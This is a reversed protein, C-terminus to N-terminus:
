DLYAFSRLQFALKGGAIEAVKIPTGSHKIREGLGSEAYTRAPVIMTLDCIENLGLVFRIDTFGEVFFLVRRKHATTGSTPQLAEEGHDRPISPDSRQM